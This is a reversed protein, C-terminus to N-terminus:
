EIKLQDFMKYVEQKNTDNDYKLIMVLIFGHKLTVYYDQFVPVSGSTNKTQLFSFTQEDIDVSEDEDVIEVTMTTKSLLTKTQKFYDSAKKFDARDNINETNIVISPNFARIRNPSKIGPDSQYAAFLKTLKIDAPKVKKEINRKFGKVVTWRPNVPLELNFFTNKYANNQITGYDFTLPMKEECGFILLSIIFVTIIKKM